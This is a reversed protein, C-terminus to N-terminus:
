PIRVAKAAEAAAQYLRRSREQWRHYYQELEYICLKNQFFSTEQFHEALVDQARQALAGSLRGSDIAKELFIRAEGEQIGEILCEFRASSEAGEPGPWLTFLVPMGVIWTPLQMGDYHSSAWEDAGVHVFGRRGLALAHDVLVRFGFPHSVTTLSLVSSDIRPIALHAVPAKWGMSMRFTPWNDFYRVTGFVDYYKPEKFGWSGIQHPGGWWKVSPLVEGLLVVLEHDVESDLPYGWHMAKELGKTKMHEYLALAFPEWIKKRQPLGMGPGGLALPTTKGTAEDSVMVEPLRPPGGGAGTGIGHMVVFNILSPSVQQKVALDLYKDLLSFDYALAGSKGAVWRILSDNKNGFETARLVPVNLLKNGARGLQVFSAELLKFHEDSWLKVGYQKAVGYPNEECGVFTQFDKPDSLRWGLVEVEVPLTVPPSGEAQLQLAGTYEGPTAAAPIHLSLWVPRCVGACLRQPRPSLQDYVCRQGVGAANWSQELKKQEPFTGGLGREDGLKHSFEAAAFPLLWSVRFASAPIVTAGITPRAEPGDSSGSARGVKPKLDSVTVTLTPSDKNSAAVVQAGFVGNQVGVIRVKGAGEGAPPFEDSCVRHHIDRAWVQLGEVRTPRTALGGWTASSLQFQSLYGHRWLNERDHLANWSRSQPTKLILPHLLSARIEIALLNVGPRLSKAPVAVPGLKRDRLSAESYAEAPYDQGPADPALDGAPLHGRAVEQGNVLVRIGGRYVAQFTLEGAKAPDDVVFRARYYCAQLGNGIFQLVDVHVKSMNGNTAEPPLDNPLDIQFPGFGLVWSSDDFEPQAWEKQPPPATYPDFFMRRFALDQWDLQATAGGKYKLAEITGVKRALSLLLPSPHFVAFNDKESVALSKEAARKLRDYLADGLVKRGEAKMLAPSVLDTGFRYYRRLGCTEDLVAASNAAFARPCAAALLLLTGFFLAHNKKM